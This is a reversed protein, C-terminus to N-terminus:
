PIFVEDIIEHKLAEDVDFIRSKDLASMIDDKSLTTDNYILDTLIKKISKIEKQSSKSTSNSIISNISFHSKPVAFRLDGCILINFAIGEAKTKCITHVPCDMTEIKDIIDLGCNISGGISDIFLEIEGEPDKSQLFELKAIIEKALDDDIVGSLYITRAHVTDEFIM